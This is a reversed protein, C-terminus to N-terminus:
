WNNPNTAKNIKRRLKHANDDMKRNVDDRIHEGRSKYEEWHKVDSLGYFKAVASELMEQGVAGPAFTHCNTYEQGQEIRQTMCVRIAPASQGNGLAFDHGTVRVGVFDRETLSSDIRGNNKLMEVAERLAERGLHAKSGDHAYRNGNFFHQQCSYKGKAESISVKDTICVRLTNNGSGHNVGAQYDFGTAKYTSGYATADAPTANAENSVM